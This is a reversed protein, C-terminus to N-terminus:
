DKERMTYDKDEDILHIMLRAYYPDFQTGIGKELESKVKEQPLPARYSRKSTMADYADAVAIIRAIEPIDTGSLGEPYGKGDFREHHYHAGISLYPSSSIKELIQKGIVPHNKIESYEEESLKGEKNIIRGPVGIKGVDHLLAAFYVQECERPSKGTLQAIRKSYEAVRSSHGHTYKDKADIANVLAEATQEFMDHLKKQEDQLYNLQIRNARDVTNNMDILVFVYLMLVVTVITINTLSLGYAFIQIPTAVVPLITFLMLMIRITKNLRSYYQIIVWFQMSYTLLPFFFSLLYFNARHYRNMEDFVYYLGTFQSIVLLLMGIIASVGAVWLRKPVKLLHGEHTVLDVLYFNFMFIEFLTLFFVSFNTIRVMWWGMQSTDGRFIYAYRDNILLLAASIEMLVLIVKRPRSLPKTLLIFLVQALCIGALALMIDM